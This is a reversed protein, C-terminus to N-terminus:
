NKIPEVHIGVHTNNGYKDKIIRELDSSKRHSELLSLDGNMRIHMEIAYHNGIKRTRLNHLGSVDPIQNILDEIDKEFDEPLSKETLEDICDKLLGAAVKLIFLSVVLAAIPDLIRWDEGLFIAGGIGLATGISSFADSRHHWANAMVAQSNVKKGIYVTFQFVCEKTIISILAAWFALMGPEPIVNGQWVLYIQTVSNWLLGAGVIFLALGIITTALTEYKGYGYDHSKDQPKSSIRIFLLVIVDTLFDSLSHIADAIMATSNGLFGAIFKFAVLLSNAIGGIITVRYIEKERNMKKIM